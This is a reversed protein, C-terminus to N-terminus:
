IIYTFKSTVISNFHMYKMQHCRYFYICVYDRWISKAISVSQGRRKVKLILYRNHDFKVCEYTIIHTADASLFLVSCRFNLM